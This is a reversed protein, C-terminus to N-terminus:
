QIKLNQQQLVRKGDSKNLNLVPEQLRQVTYVVRGGPYAAAPQPWYQTSM